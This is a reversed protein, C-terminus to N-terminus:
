YTSGFMCYSHRCFLLMRVIFQEQQRHHECHRLGPTLLPNEALTPPNYGGRFRPKEVQKKAILTHLGERVYYLINFCHLREFNHKGTAHRQVDISIKV